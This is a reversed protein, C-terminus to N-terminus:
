FLSTEGVKSAVFNVLLMIGLNIVNNFLGVASALSYNRQTIGLKYVYTSIVESQSANIPTQMLYIKEFGVSMVNATSLIFLIVITPRLHPLNIYWIRQLRSAGDITAVEHLEPSVGSLAAFYIISSYGVNQWIGSWVYMHPFYQPKMLFDIPGLHLLSILQNIIGKNQFFLNLVGVMVVMSIFHPAYTVNQVIKMFRKNRLENLMIALLIPFPFGALISYLSISVTNRIIDIFKFSSLFMRFHKFLPTAWPSGSIGQRLGFDKFALQIGYLPMYSFIIMYVVAPAIFVYLQWNTLIGRWFRRRLISKQASQQILTLM